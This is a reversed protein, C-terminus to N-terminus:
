QSANKNVRSLALSKFFLEAKKLSEQDSGAFLTIEQSLSIAREKDGLYVFLKALTLTIDFRLIDTTNIEKSISYAKILLDLAKQYEKIKIRSPAAIQIFTFNGVYAPYRKLFIEIMALGSLLVEELGFPAEQHVTALADLVKRSGHNKEAAACKVAARPTPWFRGSTPWRPWPRRIFWVKM